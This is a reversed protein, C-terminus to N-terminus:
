VQCLAVEDLFGGKTEGAELSKEGLRNADGM